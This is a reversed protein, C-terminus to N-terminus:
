KKEATGAQGAKQGVGLKQKLEDIIKDIPSPKPDASAAAELYALLGVSKDTPISLKKNRHVTYPKGQEIVVYAPPGGFPKSLGVDAVLVAGAFRPIVTTLTPTHGIIIRKVGFQNLVSRVHEALEEEDGEALGRYWLPGDADTIMGGELLAFNQLERRIRNNIDGASTGLYKPSIGGHVFLTGDIIAIANHSIIWQNYKGEPGYAFRQEFWGLPHEAEWKARWDADPSFIRGETKAKKDQESLEQQYFYQRVAESAQDKFELYNEPVVYRLDGYINMTEHNGILVHVKGKAQEAQKELKMLLDMIKRPSPGRDPVDGLQVLHTKGGSWNLKSDVVGASKLLGVFTDYDGHIDGIAVIRAVGSWAYDAAYASFSLAFIVGLVLIRRFDSRV